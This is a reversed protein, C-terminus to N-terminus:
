QKLYLADGWWEHAMKLAVRRFGREGLYADLQELRACGKYIEARNIETTIARVHRLTEEAGRLVRDEYGQVDMCLYDFGSVDHGLLEISSMVADLKRVPVELKGDFIIDPSMTPHLEPELCSSSMGRNKANNETTMTVMGDNEGLAFAYVVGADKFVKHVEAKLEGLVTPLPEFFIGRKCGMEMFSLVEQGLHAGAQIVGQPKFGHAQFLAKVDLLM